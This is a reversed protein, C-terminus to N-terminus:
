LNDCTTVMRKGAELAGYTSMLGPIVEFGTFGISTLCTTFAISAKALTDSAYILPLVTSTIAPAAVAGSLAMLVAGAVSIFAIRVFRFSKVVSAAPMRKSDINFREYFTYSSSSCSSTTTTDVAAAAALGGSYWYSNELERFEVGSVNLVDCMRRMIQRTRADYVDHDILYKLFTNLYQHVFLELQDGKEASIQNLISTLFLEASYIHTFGGEEQQDEELFLSIGHGVLPCFQDNLQAAVVAGDEEGYQAEVILQLFPLGFELYEREDRVINAVLYAVLRCITLTLQQQQQELEM